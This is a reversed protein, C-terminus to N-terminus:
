MQSSILESLSIHAETGPSVFKLAQELPKAHWHITEFSGVRSDELDRLQMDAEQKTYLGPEITKPWLTQRGRGVNGIIVYMQDSIAESIIKRIQRRTIKM